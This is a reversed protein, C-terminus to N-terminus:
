STKGRVWRGFRKLEAGVPAGEARAKELGGKSLGGPLVFWVGILAVLVVLVFPQLIQVGFSEAMAGVIFPLVAAGSGGIAATLGICIVHQESPLLKTMTVIAAPFLPGLFFGLLIVCTISAEVSPIKWYLLELIITLGLYITIALKEGIRGTVFGLVVRGTTLGAWFCTVAVGALWGSSHRVKLMFTPIWGGLCVEVGVYGFLFLAVIWPIPTRLVTATTTPQRGDELKHKKRYAEGTATWFSYLGFVLEVVSLGIMIYFYTYWQLNLKTVMASAVLPAVTGGLGYSGHILGLLENTNQLNGVWANWASDNIGNGFGTFLMAIPLVWFSPPHLAM